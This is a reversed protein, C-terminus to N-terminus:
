ASVPQEVPARAPLRVSLCMVFLATFILDSVLTSRFFLWTPAHGPLGTTLAQLWGAFGSAYEPKTVWAATNTILYFLVSGLVSAGFIRGQGTRGRLAWGLAAIVGFAFYHPVMDWSFLPEHYRLGNLLLDSLFLAALPLALAWRRPLYAAGCLILAALPSFNQIWGVEPSGVFAILVRYAVVVVLLLAAAFM